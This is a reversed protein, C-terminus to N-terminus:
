NSLRVLEQVLEGQKKGRTIGAFTMLYSRQEEIGIQDLNILGKDWLLLTGWTQASLQASLKALDLEALITNREREYELQAIIENEQGGLLTSVLRDQPKANFLLTVIVNAFGPSRMIADASIQRKALIYDIGRLDSHADMSKRIIEVLDELAVALLEDKSNFLNYLTKPSVKAAEALNRMTLGDYGVKSALKRTMYLIDVQRKLQRDSQYRQKKRM